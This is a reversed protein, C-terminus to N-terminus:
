IEVGAVLSAIKRAVDRVKTEAYIKMKEAKVEAERIIKNVEDEADKEIKKKLSDLEALYSKDELITRA